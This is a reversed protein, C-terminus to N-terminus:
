LDYNGLAKQIIQNLIRLTSSDGKTVNKRNLKNEYDMIKTSAKINEIAAELKEASYQKSNGYDLEMQLVKLAAAKLNPTQMAAQRLNEDNTFQTSAQTQRNKNGGAMADQYDKELRYQENTKLYDLDYLSRNTNATINPTQAMEKATQAKILENTAKLNENQLRMGELEPTITLAKGVDIQPAQGQSSPASSSRVPASVTTAGQGYVLNPNLGASKLREMTAAPSNYENQFATDALADKRQTAYQERAFDRNKKNQVGQMISNALGLTGGIAAAIPFPM